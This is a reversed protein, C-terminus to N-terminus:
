KDEVSLGEEVSFLINQIPQVNNLLNGEKDFASRRKTRISGLNRVLFLARERVRWVGNERLVQDLNKAIFSHGNKPNQVNRVLFIPNKSNGTAEAMKKAAVM